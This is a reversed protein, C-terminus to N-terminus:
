PASTQVQTACDSVSRDPEVSSRELIVTAENLVSSLILLQRVTEARWNFSFGSFAVTHLGKNYVTQIGKNM